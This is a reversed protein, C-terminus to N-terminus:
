QPKGDVHTIKFGSPAAPIAPHGAAPTGYQPLTSDPLGAARRQAMLNEAQATMLNRYQSVVGKLQQTSNASSLSKALEEREAQGGGGAVIAKMVEKAVVDKAADFNTVPTAGNWATIANGIQNVTHNNGNDLADILTGLQDLHQGSTAFSRLQNGQQGSTFGKAAAVKAGYTTADYEPNLQSVRAMLAAAAPRTAAMGSPPAARGAAIMQAEAELNDSLTGDKKMGAITLDKDVNAANNARSTQNNALTDPSVTTKITAAGPIAGVPGADANENTPVIMGGANTMTVKPATAAIKDKADMIGIVMQRKWQGFQNPDQLTPQLTSLVGQYKAQDIDGNALHQNLSAIADQPSNLMTIDSIAQNAKKIKTNTDNENGISNDKHALAQSTLGDQFNKYIGPGLTPAAAMLANHGAATSLDPTNPGSLLNRLSAKEAQDQTVADLQQKSRQLNLANQAIGQYQQQYDAATREPGAATQYFSTDIPM